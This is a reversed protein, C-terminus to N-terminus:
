TSLYKNIMDEILDSLGTGRELAARKLALHTTKRLYVKVQTYEPNVRKALEEPERPTSQQSAVSPSLKTGLKKTKKRATRKAM